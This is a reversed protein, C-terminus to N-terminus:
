HHVTCLFTLHYAVCVQNMNRQVHFRLSYYVMVDANLMAYAALHVLHCLNAPCYAM